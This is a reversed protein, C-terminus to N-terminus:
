RDKRNVVAVTRALGPEYLLDKESMQWALEGSVVDESVRSSMRSLM